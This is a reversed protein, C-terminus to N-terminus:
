VHKVTHILTTYHLTTYHLTTYLTTLHPMYLLPLCPHSASHLTGYGYQAMCYQVTSYRGASHHVANNAKLQITVYQIRSASDDCSLVDM